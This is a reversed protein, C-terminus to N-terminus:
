IYITNLSKNQKLKLSNTGDAENTTYYIHKHITAAPRKSYKGLVKTARGTPALLITKLNYLPLTQVLASILSTKGTGAYGNIIFIQTDPTHFLFNSLRKALEKQDKTLTHQLKNEIQQLFM